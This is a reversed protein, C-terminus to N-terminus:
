RDVKKEQIKERLDSLDAKPLIGGDTAVGVNEDSVSFWVTPVHHSFLDVDFLMRADDTLKVSYLNGYHELHVCLTEPFEHIKCSNRKLRMYVSHYLESFSVGHVMPVNAVVAEVNEPFKFAGIADLKVFCNKINEMKKEFPHM